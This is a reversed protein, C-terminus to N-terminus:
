GVVGHHRTCRIFLYVNGRQGPGPVRVCDNQCGIRGGRPSYQELHAASAPSRPPSALPAPSQRSASERQEGERAPRNERIRLM